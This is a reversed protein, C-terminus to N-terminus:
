EDSGGDKMVIQFYSTNSDLIEKRSNLLLVNIQYTGAQPQHIQPSFYVGLSDFQQDAKVQNDVPVMAENLIIEEDDRSITIQTFYDEGSQLNFFTWHITLQVDTDNPAIPITSIASKDDAKNEIYLYAIKESYMTPTGGNQFRPLPSNRITKVM